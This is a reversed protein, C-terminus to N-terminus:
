KKLLKGFEYNISDSALHNPAHSIDGPETCEERKPFALVKFARCTGRPHERGVLTWPDLRGPEEGRELWFILDSKPFPFALSTINTYNELM